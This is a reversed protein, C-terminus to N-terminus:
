LVASLNSMQSTLIGYIGHAFGTYVTLLPKEKLAEASEQSRIPYENEYNQKCFFLIAAM